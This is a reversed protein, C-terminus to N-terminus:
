QRMANCRPVAWVRLRGPLSSPLAKVTINGAQWMYEAHEREREMMRHKFEAEPSPAFMLDGKAREREMKPARFEAAPSPAQVDLFQAARLTGPAPMPAGVCGGESAADSAMKESFRDKSLITVKFSVDGNETDYSKDLIKVVIVADVRPKRHEKHHHKEECGHHKPHMPAPGPAGAAFMPYRRAPMPSGAMSRREERREAWMGEEGMGKKRDEEEHKWAGMEKDM